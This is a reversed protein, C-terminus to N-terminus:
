TAARTQPWRWSAQLCREIHSIKCSLHLNRLLNCVSFIYTNKKHRLLPCLGARAASWAIDVVAALQSQVIMLKPKASVGAKRLDWIKIPEGPSDSFTAITHQQLQDCRSGKVKRPRTAAHAMISMIEGGQGQGQQGASIRVDYLRVWSISTGVM